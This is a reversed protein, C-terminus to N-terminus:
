KGGGGEEVVSRTVGVSACLVSIVVSTSAHTHRYLLLPSFFSGSRHAAAAYSLKRPVVVVVVVVVIINNGERQVDVLDSVRGRYLRM